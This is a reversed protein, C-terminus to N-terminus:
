CRLNMVASLTEKDARKPLKEDADADEKKARKPLKEDADADADAACVKKLKDFDPPFPSPKSQSGLHLAEQAEVAPIEWGEKEFKERAQLQELLEGCEKWSPSPLPLGPYTLQRHPFLGLVDM